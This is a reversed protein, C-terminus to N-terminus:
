FIYPMSQAPQSGGTNSIHVKGALYSLEEDYEGCSMSEDAPDPQSEIGQESHNGYESRDHPMCGMASTECRSGPVQSHDVSPQPMRQPERAATFAAKQHWQQEQQQMAAAGCGQWEGGKSSMSPSMSLKRFEEHLHNADRHAGWPVQQLCVLGGQNGTRGHQASM